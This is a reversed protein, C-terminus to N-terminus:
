PAQCVGAVIVDNEDRISFWSCQTACADPATEDPNCYPECASAGGSQSSVCDLGPACDFSGNCPEDRTRGRSLACVGGNRAGFYCGKEAACDQAYVDCSAPVRVPPVPDTVARRPGLRTDLTARGGTLAEFSLIRPNEARNGHVAAWQAVEALLTDAVPEASVVVFAARFARQDEALEVVTGHRAVIDSVQVDNVGSAEVILTGTEEDYTDYLAEAEVLIPIEAPAESLPILGMLYLELPGCPTAVGNDQPYFFDVLYRTRGNESPECDPPAAGAPTECGLTSPDFGGLVGHVGAYGWHSGVDDVLGVGFGFSADLNNAWYHVMEHGFPGYREPRYQVGMVGRIRGNTKYGERESDFDLGTGPMAHRTVNQFKGIASGELAHDTLFYVFDYEEVYHELFLNASANLGGQWYPVAADNLMFADLEAAAGADVLNVVGDLERSGPPLPVLESPMGGAGGTGGTAGVGGADVTGGGSGTEDGSAGGNSAGGSSAGSPTSGGGGSGTTGTGDDATSGEGSTGSCSLSFGAICVTILRIM